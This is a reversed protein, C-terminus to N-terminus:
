LGAEKAKAALEEMKGMFEVEQCNGFRLQEVCEAVAGALEGVLARFQSREATLAAIEGELVRADVRLSNAVDLYHDGEAKVSDVLARLSQNQSSVRLLEAEAPHHCENWLHWMPRLDPNTPVIWKLQRPKGDRIEYAYWCQEPEFWFPDCGYEYGEPKPPVEGVAPAENNENM